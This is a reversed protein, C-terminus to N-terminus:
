SKDDSRHNIADDVIKKLLPGLDLTGDQLPRLRDSIADTSSSIANVIKDTLIKNLNSM